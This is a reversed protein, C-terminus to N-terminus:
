KFLRLMQKKVKRYIENEDLNEGCEICLFMM